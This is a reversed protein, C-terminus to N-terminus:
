KLIAEYMFMDKSKQYLFTFQQKNKDIFILDNLGDQNSDQCNVLTNELDPLNASFNDLMNILMNNDYKYFQFFSNNEEKTEVCIIPRSSDPAPLFSLNKDLRSYEILEGKPSFLLLQTTKIDFQLKTLLLSDSTGTIRIKTLQHKTKNDITKLLVNEAYKKNLEALWLSDNQYTEPQQALYFLNNKDSKQSKGNQFFSRDFEPPSPLIINTKNKAIDSNTCAALIFLSFFYKKM